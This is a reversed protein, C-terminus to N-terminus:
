VSSEEGKPNYILGLNLGWILHWLYIGFIGKWAPVQLFKGLNQSFFGFDFSFVSNFLQPVWWIASLTALILAWIEAKALNGGTSNPIPLRPHVIYAYFLAFCIGTATHYVTGAWFISLPSADKGLLLIGNFTPWALDPLNFGHFWFGFITAVHTAVFGAVLATVLKSNSVDSRFTTERTAM